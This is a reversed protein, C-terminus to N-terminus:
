ITNITSHLFACISVISYHSKGSFHWILYHLDGLLIITIQMEYNFWDAVFM